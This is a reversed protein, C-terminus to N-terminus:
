LTPKKFLKMYFSELKENVPVYRGTNIHTIIGLDAINV